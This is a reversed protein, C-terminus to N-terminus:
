RKIQKGTMLTATKQVKETAMKKQKQKVSNSHCINDDGKKCVGM